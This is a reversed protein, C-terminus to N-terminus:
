RVATDLCPTWLLIDHLGRDSATEADGRAMCRVTRHLATCYLVLIRCTAHVANRISCILQHLKLPAQIRKVMM